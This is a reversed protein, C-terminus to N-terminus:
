EKWQLSEILTRIDKKIYIVAPYISDYNPKVNFYLSGTLFHKTSDTVYFQAQSAANGEVEYVMGYVNQAANEYVTPEIADAKVAHEYTLKQVDELLQRLNGNVPVYSLHLTGKLAPYDLNIWCNQKPNIVAIQNKEFTYPCDSQVKAYLAEPFELRLFGKPKPLVEDGCSILLVCILLASLIYKLFTM